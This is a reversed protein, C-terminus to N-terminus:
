KVVENISAWLRTLSKQIMEDISGEICCARVFCPRTQGKNMIRKSIQDMDSPSLSYEVLWLENAASLDIAEGAARIQALFVRNEPARFRQEATERDRPTTAGDLRVVGHSALKQELIDGVERHWYGLVVKDMGNGFEDKVAAAVLDAKLVGTHRRLSPGMEKALKETDGQWAAHLIRTRVDTAVETEAVARKSILPLLEYQPPKIGIERQTRRVYIKSPWELRDRLEAENQGHLVIPIVRIASIRKHGIVCYRSRFDDYSTVDPWGRRADARLREPFSARLRPWTNGLDHPMPTGSLHWVRDEPQIIAQGTLLDAGDSVGYIHQTRQAEPNTAKHDEDLIILDPRRGIAAPLARLAGWSVIGVDTKGKPDSDLVRIERPTDSLDTFARRWVGRGSATTVVLISRAQVYDAALVATWTKGTRPQSWNLFRQAASMAEADALQTPMPTIM